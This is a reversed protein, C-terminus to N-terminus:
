AAGCRQARQQCCVVHFAARKTSAQLAPNV